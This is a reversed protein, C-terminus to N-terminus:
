PTMALPTTPEIKPAPKEGLLYQNSIAKFSIRKGPGNSKFVLGERTRAKLSPGDAMRLLDDIATEDPMIRLHAEVVPVHQIGRAACFERRESPDFYRYADIDFIDYVFLEVAPLKEHNGHIGHGILECQLALNRGTGVIKDLLHAKRVARWLVNKETELMSIGRSCVGQLFREDGAQDNRFVTVSEGELKVSAEFTTEGWSPKIELNQIREQDTKPIFSPFYGVAQGLLEPPLPPDWKVVGFAEQLVVPDTTAVAPFARTPLALGQSVQDRMVVTKLRFGEVDGMQRYCSKRLFEFEPRIPLFSDIEFYFCPDGAKFEGKKVVVEWGDIRACEIADAGPIPCIDSITRRTVLHRMLNEAIAQQSEAFLLIHANFFSRL